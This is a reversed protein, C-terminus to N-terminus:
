ALKLNILSRIKSKARSITTRVNEHSMEMIQAIEDNDYGEILNLTLAIRYNSKLLEIFKLVESCKLESYDNEDEIEPMDTKSNEIFEFSIITYRKNKKLATLSNNIVIRKLWSGFSYDGLNKFSNLNMFANLFSEQMIDEAEFSDNVIRYSVNYMAKYYLKYIEMQAKSDNNKCREILQNIHINKAEL